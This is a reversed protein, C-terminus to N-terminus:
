LADAITEVWPLSIGSALGDMAKDILATSSDVQGVKADASNALSSEVTADSPLEVLDGLEIVPEFDIDVVGEDLLRDNATSIVVDEMVVRPLIFRKRLLAAQDYVFWLKPAYLQLPQDHADTAHPLPIEVHEACGAAQRWHWQVSDAHVGSGLVTALMHQEAYRKGAYAGGAM